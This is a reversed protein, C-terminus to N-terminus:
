LLRELVGTLQLTRRWHRREDNGLKRAALLIALRTLPSSNAYENRLAMADSRSGNAYLALAAFRRVVNSPHTQFIRLIETAGGWNASSAFVNLVWIIHYDPPWRGRFSKVSRLLGRAIRGRIRGPGTHFTQFFRSVVEAIPYLHEINDLLVGAIEERQEYSRRELLSPHSLIATLREYDVLTRDALATNILGRFNLKELENLEESTLEIEEDSYPGLRSAIQVLSELEDEVDQEPESFFLSEFNEKSFINTKVASLTLGHNDFLREALRFLRRQADVESSCFITYDDVWRLFDTGDSLLAADVDILVGEGLIRSAFPGIPIGYSTQGFLNPIFKRVLVRAVEEVRPSKASAQIVNELRHQYIRPYFDAIDAVAVFKTSAREAKRRSEERFDAFTPQPAYFRNPENSARFSFIRRSRVPIREAELDDKVILTLASYIILDIPHLLCVPRVTARSKPAFVIMPSSPVYNDLDYGAIRPKIEDWKTRVTDWELPVPVLSSYGHHEIAEFANQIEPETLCFPM